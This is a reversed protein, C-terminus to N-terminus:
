SKRNPRNEFDYGVRTHIIGLLISSFAKQLKKLDQLTLPCEDFQHEDVRDYIIQSVLEEINQLSQPKKLVRSAAEIADSLCILAAEKTQPKPGDYHFIAEDFSHADTEQRSRAKEHFFRILSDGHHQQIIDLIQQPLKANKGLTVGTRVHNKISMASLEPKKSEHFNEELHRNEIFYEPKEIKGIDHYIAATKCLIPNAGIIAAAQEAINSVVLSHHYTGSSLVQLQQMLPHNYDYLEFLKIDSCYHFIRELFPLCGLAISSSLIGSIMSALVEPWPISSITETSSEFLFIGIASFSGSLIGAHFVHSRLYPSRCALAAVFSASFCTLLFPIGQDTMLTYFVSILTCCCIGGQIQLFITSLITGISFPILRLFVYITTANEKWLSIETLQLLARLLSLNLIIMTFFFIVDKEAKRFTISSSFIAIWSLTIIILTRLYDQMLQRNTWLKNEEDVHLAKYYASLKEYDENSISTGASVLMTGKDVFKRVKPLTALLQRFKEESAAADFILNPRVGLKMIRFLAQTLAQEMDMFLLHIRLFRLANEMSRINIHNPQGKVEIKLLHSSEKDLINQESESFIGDIAIEQLINLSEQFISSRDIHSFTKLIIIIDKWDVKLQHHRNFNELAHQLELFDMEETSAGPCLTELFTNLEWLDKSFTEFSTLDIKYVPALQSRKEAILRKTETTSIYSFPIQAVIHSQIIQGPFFRRSLPTRKWFCIATIFFSITGISLAAELYKKFFTGRPTQFSYNNHHRHLSESISISSPKSKNRFSFMSVHFPSSFLAM